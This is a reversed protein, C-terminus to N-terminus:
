TPAPRSSCRSRLRRQKRRGGVDAGDPRALERARQRRRQSRDASEAGRRRRNARRDHAGNRRGAARHESRRRRPAAAGRDERQREHGGALAADRRLSERGQRNAGAALLLDVVDLADRHVAWHLATSGDLAAANVDAKKQLERARGGVDGAKAADVLPARRRRGDARARSCRSHADGRHGAAAM